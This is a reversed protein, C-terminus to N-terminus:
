NGAVSVRNRGGAKSAYLAQDAQELVEQHTQGNEPFSAVGVSISVKGLPQKEGHPFAHAEIAKRINEALAKAEASGIGPCLVVFEEGGYRAPFDTERRNKTLLHAVQRLVEDGAPHGNQDNYKKFHDVDCFIVSYPTGYRKARGGEKEIESMFSRFNNLGTMEDTRSMRELRASLEELAKRAERADTVDKAVIQLVEGYDALKLRCVQTELVRWHSGDGRDIDLDFPGISRMSRKADEISRVLRGRHSEIVWQGLEQGVLEREPSALFDAAAPNAELVRYTKSDLLLVFDTMKHFLDSYTALQSFTGGVLKDGLVEQLSSKRTKSKAQSGM